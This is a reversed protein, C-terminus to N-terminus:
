WTHPSRRKRLVEEYAKDYWREPNRRDAITLGIFTIVALVGGVIISALM